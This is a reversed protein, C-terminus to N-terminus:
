SFCWVNQSCSDCFKRKDVMPYSLTKLEILKDSIISLEEILQENIEVLERKNTDFFYLEGHWEELSANALHVAYYAVQYKASSKMYKTKKKEIVLKKGIDLMDPKIGFLGETSPSRSHSNEDMLAGQKLIDSLQAFTTQNMQLWVLRPCIVYDSFWQAKMWYHSEIKKCFLQIQKIPYM